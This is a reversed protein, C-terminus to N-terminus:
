RAHHAKDIEGALWRTFRERGKTNMHTLDQFGDSYLEELLALPPSVLRAGYKEDFAATFKPDAIPEMFGPVLMFVVTIGHEKAYSVFRRIYYGQRDENINDLRWSTPSLDALTKGKAVVQQRKAKLVGEKKPTDESFCTRTAAPLRADAAYASLRSLKGELLQELNKDIKDVFHGIVDRAKSYAPERPKTHWDELFDSTPVTIAYNPYYGYYYNTTRNVAYSLTSFEIVIARRVPGLADSADALMRYLQGTGKWSRALSLVIPKESESTSPALAESMVEASVGQMTRSSGLIVVDMPGSFGYINKHHCPLTAYRIEPRDSYCVFAAVAYVATALLTLGALRVVPAM